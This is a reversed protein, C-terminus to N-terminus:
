NEILFVTYVTKKLTNYIHIGVRPELGSVGPPATSRSWYWNKEMQHSVAGENELDQEKRQLIPMPNQLLITNQKWEYGLNFLCVGGLEYTSQYVNNAPERM